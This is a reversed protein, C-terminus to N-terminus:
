YFYKFNTKDFKTNLGLCVSHGWSPVYVTQHDGFFLSSLSFTSRSLIVIKCQTLLYLDHNEDNTTIVEYPLTVISNPTTVIKITYDPQNIENLISIIKSDSLPAQRNCGEPQTYFCYEKNEVKSKYFNSCISGDYDSCQAVDDLRLHILITKSVDFPIPYYTQPKINLRKFYTFYDSEITQTTEGILGTYCHTNGYFIRFNYKKGKNYEEIFNFLAKVFPTNNYKLDGEVEIYYNNHYAFLIQAIYNTINAGLRDPRDYLKIYPYNDTRNENKGFKCYHMWADFKNNIGILDPYKELYVEWNFTEILLM